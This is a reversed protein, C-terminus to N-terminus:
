NTSQHLCGANIARKANQSGATHKVNFTINHIKKAFLFAQQKGYV